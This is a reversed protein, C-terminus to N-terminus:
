AKAAAACERVVQEMEDMHREMDKALAIQCRARDLNHGPRHTKFYVDGMIYDELFRIALECTLDFCSIALTDLETQTLYKAVQSLFGKTFARFIDMDIGAAKAFPCDEEVKNAAFRIADGFDHGVLGPMVTDLDVVVIAKKGDKEFLVNNIKTDNHTVRLPLKNEEYLRTLTCAKDRVSRLWDIEERVWEVRDYPDAAVANELQNYRSVTNHFGPITEHLIAADFDRLQVQFDGFAQGGSEIIELDDVKDYTTSVVYNFLRWFGNEDFVYTKRDATHHFHLVKRHPDKAHMYETVHDINEMVKVPEKFVVTNVMQVMYSKPTGDSNIVNVKYTNNINGRKIEKYSDLTGQICFAECVHKLKRFMAENM